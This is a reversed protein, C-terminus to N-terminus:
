FKTKVKEKLNHLYKVTGRFISKQIVYPLTGGYRVHSICTIETYSGKRKMKFPKLINLGIINESRCFDKHVPVLPHRIGKSVLVYEKPYKMYSHMLTCFDYSKIALPINTRNWVIKSEKSIKEVDIRGACYRNYEAVRSSDMLYEILVKADGKIVTSSKMCPWEKDEEKMNISSPRLKWVSVENEIGLFDWAADSSLYMNAMKITDPISYLPVDKRQLIMNSIWENVDLMMKNYSSRNIDGAQYIFGKFAALSAITDNCTAQLGHTQSGGNNASTSWLTPVMFARADVASYLPWGISFLAIM